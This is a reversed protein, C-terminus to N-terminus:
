GFISRDRVLVRVPKSSTGAGEVRIPQPTNSADGAKIRWTLLVRDAKEKVTKEESEDRALAFGRPLVPKFIQGPEAKYVYASVTFESGPAVVGPASLALRDDGQVEGLGYTYGLTRTEGKNLSTEAWYLLVCSDKGIPGQPEVEWKKFSFGDQYGCIIVNIPSEIPPPFRLGLRMVTGPNQPDKPNEVAEIYQPIEKEGLSRRETVFGSEGPIAFPVGDNSGIYTDLLVRMGVIQPRAGKNILTYKVRCTDLSDSLGKVLDVEQAIEVQQQNFYYVTRYGKRGAGVSTQSQLTAFNATSVGFIYDPGGPGGFRVCVNGTKGTPQNEGRLTPNLAKRGAEGKPDNPDVVELAFRSNKSDFRIELEPLGSSGVLGRIEPFVADWAAVVGVAVLLIGLPMLHKLAGGGSAARKRRPERSEDPKSEPESEARRRAATNERDRERARERERESRGEREPEFRDGPEEADMVPVPEDVAEVVAPVESVVPFDPVEEVAQVVAVAPADEVAQVVAVVPVGSTPEDTAVAVVPVAEEDEVAAVVPVPEDDFAFPNFGSQDKRRTGPVALTVPILFRQNGNSQVTLTARLTEGPRDPVSPVYVRLTASNGKLQARDVKLWPQDSTAHAFIYKKEATQLLLEQELESGIAASWEIRKKNITVKPAPALGLAEFFQQIAGLGSAAPGPVPYEWGNSKYWAAVAGNEFLPAAEKPSKKALEAIRRGTKAGQLVGEPFPKVPVTAKIQITATGGSSDITLTAILPKDSARVRDRELRVQLIMHEQFQFSRETIGPKEDLTLWAQQMDPVTVTVDGYVLREGANELRIELLRDQGPEITGLNIEQSEVRLKPAALAEKDCPLRGLLQDLARDPDPFKRAERAATVLDLRGLGTLFSEILGQQLLDRAEAWRLNCARALENFSRCSQGDPFVFPSNFPMSGVAVPGGTRNHGGLVLGDYYCYIADPPNVRSCKACTQIM